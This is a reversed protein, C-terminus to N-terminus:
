EIMKPFLGQMLGKKHLKLQEIKEAQSMILDDLSSFCSAIKQQENLNPIEIKIEQLISVSAVNKIAGGGAQSLIQEQNVPLELILKIFDISFEKKIELKLLAQNIVGKICYIPLACTQVGTM